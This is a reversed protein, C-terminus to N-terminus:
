QSFVPEVTITEVGQGSIQWLVGSTITTSTTNASAPVVLTSSLLPKVVDYGVSFQPNFMTAVQYGDATCVGGGSIQINPTPYDWTLSLYIRNNELHSDKLSLPVQTSISLFPCSIKDTKVYSTGWLVFNGSGTLTVGDPMVDVKVAAGAVEWAPFTEMGAVPYKGTYNMSVVWSCKLVNVTLSLRGTRYDSTQAILSIHDTGTETAPYDFSVGGDADTKKTLGTNTSQITVDAYPVPLGTETEVILPITTDAGQCMPDPINFSLPYLTLSDGQAGASIPLTVMGWLLIGSLFLRGALLLSCIAKM